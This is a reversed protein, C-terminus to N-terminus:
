RRVRQHDKRAVHGPDPGVRDFRNGARDFAPSHFGGGVKLEKVLDLVERKAGVDMGRTPENLILVRPQKTLWKALVVKQQNGGSLHGALMTPSAPGFEPASCSRRPTGIEARAPLGTEGSSRSARAHHEQVGRAEPLHNGAPERDPLRHRAKPRWRTLPKIIKGDLSITGSRAQAHRLACARDRDHRRGSIRLPRPDRGRAPYPSM